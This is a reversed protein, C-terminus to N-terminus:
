QQRRISCRRQLTDGSCGVIFANRWCWKTLNGSIKTTEKRQYRARGKCTRPRSSSALPSGPTASSLPGTSPPMHRILPFPLITLRSEIPENRMERRPQHIALSQSKSKCRSLHPHQPEVFCLARVLRLRCSYLLLSQMTLTEIDM